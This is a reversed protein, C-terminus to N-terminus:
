SAAESNDRITKAVFWVRAYYEAESKLLPRLLVIWEAETRAGITPEDENM